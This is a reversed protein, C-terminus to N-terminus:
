DSYIFFAPQFPLTSYLKSGRCIVHRKEDPDRNALLAKNTLTIGVNREWPENGEQKIKKYIIIQAAQGTTQAV